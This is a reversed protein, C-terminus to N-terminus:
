AIKQFMFDKEINEMHDEFDVLSSHRGNRVHERLENVWETSGLSPIRLVNESCKEWSSSASKQLLIVPVKQGDTTGRVCDNLACGDLMLVIGDGRGSKENLNSVKNAIKKEIPGLMVDHRRENCQYYGVISYSQPSQNTKEGQEELRSEILALALEMQGPLSTFTHNIPVVDNVVISEDSVNGLVVGSCSSLPFKLSHLILKFLAHEEVTVTRIMTGDVIDSADGHEVINKKRNSHHNSCIMGPCSTHLLAQNQVRSFFIGNTARFGLFSRKLLFPPPARFSFSGQMQREVILM